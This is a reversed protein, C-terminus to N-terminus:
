PKYGTVFTLRNLTENIKEVVRTQMAADDPAMRAWNTMWGLSLASLVNRDVKVDGEAEYGAIFDTVYSEPVTMFDNLINQAQGTMSFDILGTIGGDPGQMINGGHYDGHVIGPQRHDGLYRRAAMLGENLRASLHPVPEIQGGASNENMTTPGFPLTRAIRHFHALTRGAENFYAKEVASAEAENRLAPPARYWDGATGSVKTMRFMNVFPGDEPFERPTGVLVPVALHGFIGPHDALMRLNALEADVAPARTCGTKPHNFRLNIKTVTNDGHDMVMGFAGSGALKTATLEPVIQCAHNFLATVSPWANRDTPLPGDPVNERSHGTQAPENRSM